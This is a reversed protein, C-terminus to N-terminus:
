KSKLVRTRKVVKKLVEDNSASTDNNAKANEEKLIDTKKSDDLTETKAALEEALKEAKSKRGRKKPIKTEIVTTEIKEETPKEEVIPAAKSLKDGLLENLDGYKDIYFKEEVLQSIYRDTSIEMVRAKCEIDYFLRDNLEIDVRMVDQLCV